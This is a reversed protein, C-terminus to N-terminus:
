RWVSACHLSSQSWLKQSSFSILITSATAVAGGPHLLCCDTSETPNLPSFLLFTTQLVFRRRKQKSADSTIELISKNETHIERQSNGECSSFSKGPAFNEKKECLAAARPISSHQGRQHWAESGQQAQTLGNLSQPSLEPGTSSLSFITLLVKGWQDYLM